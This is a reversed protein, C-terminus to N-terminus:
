GQQDSTVEKGKRARKPVGLGKTQRSLDSECFVCLTTIGNVGELRVPPDFVKFVESCDVFGLKKGYSCQTM